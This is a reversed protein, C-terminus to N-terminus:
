DASLAVVPDLHAAKHAPMFGFILGTAFACGFALLVPGATFQIPTGFYQLVSGFGLGIVVGIAGGIASVVVAEVIFQQLINRTRAGTAMRIGIERTRESVNVLMINMVGIGGVLLSIAAISGLLVTFTNQTSAVNELLSAMNRIQFDEVGAHNALIAQRVAEQTADSQDLDDILVSVNSLHRSGILRNSATNLPVFVVDDQDQGWPTAGKEQMVGIVLFPVNRILMYQGLPDQDAFLNNAVTRGIVAVAAYRQNDEDNIFVGSHLGWNKAVVFDATTGTISTQADTNGARITARSEVEPVAAVVNDIRAAVEADQPTLTNTSGDASRRTNPAGPRVILLNTGMDSIREVVDQRAGNGVALMVVVSAVGIVIGLLTLVTRFLNARLARLAMRVAENTDGLAALGQKRQAVPASPEVAPAPRNDTKRGSDHIIQGDRIEILRDAHSAVERDHTIVIVTKGRAHLDKLLQLVDQGSKSDLAGTPEDALLIRADNMLARAISVRQQQGGSLQNPRNGLREGLGLGTLLEEARAHRQERPLGAYVAPVEVNETANASSILHYSQFIFGFTRSRLSALQDSDLRAIDEGEFLYRGTSPQDLCGLLHMLTSKGSGSAGMIAVFEGAHIDLSVDSLVTTSLEGNRYTKGIGQLRILPSSM